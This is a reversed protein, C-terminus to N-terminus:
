PQKLPCVQQLEGAILSFRHEPLRFCKRQTNNGRKRGAQKNSGRSTAVCGDLFPACHSRRVTALRNGWLTAGKQMEQTDACTQKKWGATVKLSKGFVAVAPILTSPELESPGPNGTSQLAGLREGLIPLSNIFRASSILHRRPKDVHSPSISHSIVVRHSALPPRLWWPSRISQPCLPSFLLLPSNTQTLVIQTDKMGDNNWFSFFLFLLAKNEWREFFIWSPFVFLSHKAAKRNQACISRPGPPPPPTPYRGM